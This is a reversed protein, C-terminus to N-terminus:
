GEEASQAIYYAATEFCEILDDITEVKVDPDLTLSEIYERLYGMEQFMEIYRLLVLLKHMKEGGHPINQAYVPCSIIPLTREGLSRIKDLRTVM